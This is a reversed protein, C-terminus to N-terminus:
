LGTKLQIKDSSEIESSENESLENFYFFCDPNSWMTCIFVLEWLFFFVCLIFYKLYYFVNVYVLYMYM